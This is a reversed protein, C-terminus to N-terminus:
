FFAGLVFLLGGIIGALACIVFMVGYWGRLNEPTRKICGIVAGVSIVLLVIGIILSIFNM